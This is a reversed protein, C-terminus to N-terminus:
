DDSLSEVVLTEEMCQMLKHYANQPIISSVYKEVVIKTATKAVLHMIETVDQLAFYFNSQLEEVDEYLKVGGLKDM